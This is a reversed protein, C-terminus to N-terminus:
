FQSVEKEDIKKKLIDQWNELIDNVTDIIAANEKKNVFDSLATAM